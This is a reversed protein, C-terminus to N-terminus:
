ITQQPSAGVKKAQRKAKQERKLVDARVLPQGEEEPAVLYKHGNFNIGGYFRAISLQGFQWNHIREPPQKNM